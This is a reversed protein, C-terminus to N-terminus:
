IPRCGDLDVLQAPRCEDLDVLQALRGGVALRGAANLLGAVSLLDVPQATLRGAIPLTQRSYLGTRWWVM